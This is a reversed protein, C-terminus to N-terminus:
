EPLNRLVRHVMKGWSVGTDQFEMRKDSMEIEDEMRAWALLLVEIGVAARRAVENGTQLAEDEIVRIFEYAAHNINLQVNLIGGKPVVDFMQYGSINSHEFNYILGQQVLKAAKEEAEDAEIGEKVLHKKVEETREDDSLEVRAKDTPTPKVAGRKLDEDTVRTAADVVEEESTKPGGGPLTRAPRRSLMQRLEQHLMTRTTQRIHFAIVYIDADHEEIGLSELVVSDPDESEFMDKIARSLHSVMQKNHDVGFIDDLGKDFRVECGWWRNEPASGGGGSAGGRILFPELVIERNERVVSIGMNKRAHKGHESIGPRDTRYEGLAEQKALSYVIEVREERGNIKFTFEKPEGYPRFMPSENWPAPTTSDPMLYLPDNPRVLKDLYPALEAPKVAAMRITLDSDNIYHRYIRGIEEEVQDFITEARMGGIRDPKSWVVLTGRRRDLSEEGALDVWVQPVPKGTPEPVDKLEEDEIEDLDIYSHVARDIDNEWSWVDFRRCQSVSATPLGMGYKGIKRISQTETRGGFRIAEVLTKASMGHGNDLVAMESVRRRDRTNIRTWEERILVEVKTARADISNDILEAIANAPHRYRSDRMAQVVMHPEFLSREFPMQM